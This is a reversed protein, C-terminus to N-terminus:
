RSLLIATRIHRRCGASVCASRSLDASTDAIDALGDGNLDDIVLSNVLGYGFCIDPWGLTGDNLQYYLLITGSSGGVALDMRSDRNLDGIALGLPMNPSYLQVPPGLSGDPQQYLVYLASPWATVAVDDRGDGNLDGVAVTKAEQSLGYVVPSEFM